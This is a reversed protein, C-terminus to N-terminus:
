PAITVPKRHLSQRGSRLLPHKSRFRGLIARSIRINNRRTLKYHYQFAFVSWLERLQCSQLYRNGGQSLLIAWELSSRVSPPVSTFTLTLLLVTHMEFASYKSVAAIGAEDSLVNRATLRMLLIVGHLVGKSSSLPVV